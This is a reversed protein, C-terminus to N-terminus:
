KFVGDQILRGLAVLAAQEATRQRLPTVAAREIRAARTMKAVAGKVGAALKVADLLPLQETM